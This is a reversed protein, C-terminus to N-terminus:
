EVDQEVAGAASMMASPSSPLSQPKEVDEILRSGSDAAISARSGAGMGASAARSQRAAPAEQPAAPKVPAWDDSLDSEPAKAVPAIFKSAAAARASPPVAAKIAPAAKMTEGGSAKKNEKCKELDDVLERATQYREAPDKALSK